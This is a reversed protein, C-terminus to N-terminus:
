VLVFTKQKRMILYGLMGSRGFSDVASSWIKSSYNALILVRPTLSSSSNGFEALTIAVVDWCGWVWSELAHTLWVRPWCEAPLRSPGLVGKSLPNLPSTYHDELNLFSCKFFMFWSSFFFSHLPFNCSAQSSGTTAYIRSSNWALFDLPPKTRVLWPWSFCLVEDNDLDEFSVCM